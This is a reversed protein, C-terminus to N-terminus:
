IAFRFTTRNIAHLLRHFHFTKMENGWNSNRIIDDYLFNSIIHIRAACFAKGHPKTLMEEDIEFSYIDDQYHMQSTLMVGVFGQEEDNVATNSLVICPHRLLTGDPPLRFEVEVIQRQYITM